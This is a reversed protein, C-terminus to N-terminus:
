RKKFYKYKFKVWKWNIFGLFNNTAKLQKMKVEYFDPHIRFLYDPTTNLIHHSLQPYKSLANKNIFVIMNQKYWYEIGSINWLKERLCDVPIYGFKQFLAAWFEPYQENIHYTGEQNPIAASFLVVDSLRVLTSIFQESTSSPLHEGVELSMALDYKKEEFYPLKLDHIVLKKEEIKVLAKNVYEGEVGKFDTIKLDENWVRLWEGTGCGIDIVSTPNFLENVIPLVKKASLYSNSELESFFNKTYQKAEIM